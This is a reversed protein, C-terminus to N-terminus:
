KPGPPTLKVNWENCVKVIEDIASKVTMKAFLANAKDPESMACHAQIAVKWGDEQWPPYRRAIEMAKEIAQPYKGKEYRGTATYLAQWREEETWEKEEAVGADAPAPKDTLTTVVRELASPKPTEPKPEPPKVPKIERPAVAVPKDVPKPPAEDEVTTQPARERVPETSGDSLSLKLYVLAGAIGIALLVLWRM